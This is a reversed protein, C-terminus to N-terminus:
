DTSTTNYRKKEIDAVEKTSDEQRKRFFNYVIDPILFANKRYEYIRGQLDNSLKFLEDETVEPKDKEAAIITVQYKLNALEDMTKDNAIIAQLLFIIMSTFPLFVYELSSLFSNNMIMSSVILIAVIGITLTLLIKKFSNRLDSDWNINTFQCHLRGISLRMQSYSSDYWDKLGDSWEVNKRTMKKEYKRKYKTVEHISGETAGFKNENWATKLVNHDFEEQIRSAFDRKTNIW